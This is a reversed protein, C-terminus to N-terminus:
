RQNSQSHLISSTSFHNYGRLSLYFGSMTESRDLSGLGTCTPELTSCKCDDWGLARVVFTRVYFRATAAVFAIVTTALTAGIIHPGDNESPNSPLPPRESLSMTLTRAPLSFTRLSFRLYECVKTYISLEPTGRTIQPLHGVVSPQRASHGM